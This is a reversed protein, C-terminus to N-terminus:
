VPSIALLCSVKILALTQEMTLDGTPQGNVKVVAMGVIVQLGQEKILEAAQGLHVHM